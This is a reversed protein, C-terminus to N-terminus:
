VGQRGTALRVAWQQVEPSLQLLAEEVSLWVLQHDPEVPEASPHPKAVGVFFTCRKRYYTQDATFFALEDAVGIREGVTVQLGCEEVCERM